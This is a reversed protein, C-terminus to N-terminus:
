FPEEDDPFDPEVYDHVQQPLAIVKEDIEDVKIRTDLVHDLLANQWDEMKKTLSDIRQGLDQLEAATPDDEAVLAEISAERGASSLVNQPEYGDELVVALAGRLKAKAFEAESVGLKNDSAGVVIAREDSVDFPAEGQVAVLLVVPMKFAHAVGLEWFVNANAGTLDAIVVRASLLRNVMERMISGPRDDLDARYVTLGFAPDELVPKLVYELVDDARKREPSGEDSVRTIFFAEGSM